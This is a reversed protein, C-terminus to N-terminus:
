GPLLAARGFIQTGSSGTTSPESHSLKLGQRRVAVKGKRKAISYTVDNAWVLRRGRPISM